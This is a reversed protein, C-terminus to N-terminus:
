ASSSFLSEDIDHAPTTGWRVALEHDLESLLECTPEPLPKICIFMTLGAHISSLHKFSSSVFMELNCISSARDFDVRHIPRHLSGLKAAEEREHTNFAIATLPPIHESM